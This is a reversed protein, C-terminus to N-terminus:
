MNEGSPMGNGESSSGASPMPESGTATDM